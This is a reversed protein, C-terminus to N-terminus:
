FNRVTDPVCHPNLLRLGVADGVWPQWRWEPKLWWLQSRRPSLLEGWGAGSLQLMRPLSGNALSVAIPVQKPARLGCPPLFSVAASVAGTPVLCADPSSSSDPPRRHGHLPAPCKRARDRGQAKFSSKEKQSIVVLCPTVVSSKIALVDLLPKPELM